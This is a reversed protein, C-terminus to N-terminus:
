DRIGRCVNRVFGSSTTKIHVQQKKKISGLLVCDGDSDNLPGCDNLAELTDQLRKASSYSNRINREIRSYVDDQRKSADSTVNLVTSYRKHHLKNSAAPRGSKKKEDIQKNKTEVLKSTSIQFEELIKISPQVEFHAKSLVDSLEFTGPSNLLRSRVDVNEKDEYLMVKLTNQCNVDAQSFTLKRVHAPTSENEHFKKELTFNHGTFEFSDSESNLSIFSDDLKEQNEEKKRQDKPQIGIYYTQGHGIKSSTRDPASHSRQYYEVAFLRDADRRAPTDEKDPNNERVATAKKTKTNENNKAQSSIRPKKDIESRKERKSNTPKNAQSRTFRCRDKILKSPLSGVRQINFKVPIQFSAAKGKRVSGKQQGYKAKWTKLSRPLSENEGNVQSKVLHDIGHQKM